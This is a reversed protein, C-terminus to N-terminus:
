ESDRLKNELWEMAGRFSNMDADDIDAAHTDPKRYYNILKSKADFIEIDTDFLNKFLDWNKHMLDFLDKLYIAHKNADFLDNYSLSAYKSAKTGYKSLVKRKAEEEGYTAKLQRKILKRLLPEVTNRRKSIEEQKEDNSQNLKKYKNKHSLYYKLVEIKFGYEGSNKEIIGYNILHNTYEPSQEALGKFTHFDNISLLSLMYHEDEYFKELIDLVMSSYVNAKNEYFDPKLKEYIVKSITYPRVEKIQQHVYSCFQRILFPHGGFDEVLKSCVIQDFRLGMYGGLKNVMEKTKEVDFNDIYTAPIQIFIPNDVGKISPKEVCQPNTGCILFTFIDDTHHFTSRLVNWFKIFFEGNKWGESLSTGFSINEIEDFVLLIKKGSNLRHITKIDNLFLESVTEENLYNEKKNIKTRKIEYKSCLAEIIFFLASNWSKLHLTQCDIFLYSQNKKDLAREVGFLISTKGTKRLGFIGSNAGTLHRNLLEHILDKRGFFYLDKKLPDQLGFLDRSYFHTRLKNIIIEENDINKFELYSFPVIVRSEENSKLINNIKKEVDSDASILISCIEELRLEQYDLYDIADISRPEFQSYASMAVVVERSLNFMIKILETPKILFIKYTSGAINIKRTSTIYWQKSFYDLIKRETPDFFSLDAGSHVGTKLEM